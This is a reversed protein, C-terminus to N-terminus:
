FIRKFRLSGFCRGVILLGIIAMSFLLPSSFSHFFSMAAEGGYANAVLLISSIRLINAAIAIPVASLFIAAKMYMSGELLYAYLAALTLLSIISRLGSCPAGVDFASKALHIESGTTSAQVGLASVLSAASAASPAQLAAGIVPAVPIPAMFFLFCIPFLLSKMVDSGYIFLIMGALVVAISIASAFRFTRFLGIGHVLLGAVIVPIGLSSPEKDLESLEARRNWILYGSILPVLIGHSYYPDNLWANLLWIITNHYIALILVLTAALIVPTRYRAGDM